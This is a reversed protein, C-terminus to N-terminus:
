EQKLIKLDEETIPFKTDKPVNLNEVIPFEDYYYEMGFFGVSTKIKIIDGRKYKNNYEYESCKFKFAKKFWSTLHINYFYTSRKKNSYSESITKDIVKLYRVIPKKTDLKQNLYYILSSNVMYPWILLFGPIIFLYVHLQDELIDDLIDKIIHKWTFFIIISSEILSVLVLVTNKGTSLSILTSDEYKMLLIYPLYLVILILFSSILFIDKNYKIKFTKDPKKNLKYASYPRYTTNARKPTTRKLNIKTTKKLNDTLPENM